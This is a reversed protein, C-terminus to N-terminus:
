ATCAGPQRAGRKVGENLGSYPFEVTLHGTNPIPLSPTGGYGDAKLQALSKFPYLDGGYSVYVQGNLTLLTGGM